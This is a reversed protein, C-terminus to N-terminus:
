RPDERALIQEIRETIRAAARLLGVTRADDVSLGLGRQAVIGGEFAHGPESVSTLTWTATVVAVLEGTYTPSEDRLLAKVALRWQRSPESSMADGFSRRLAAVFRASDETGLGMARISVTRAPAVTQVSARTRFSRSALEDDADEWRVDFEERLRGGTVAPVPTGRHVLGDADSRLALPRVGTGPSRRVVLEVNPVPRDRWSVRLVTDAIASVVIETFISERLAECRGVEADSTAFLTPLLQSQAVADRCEALARLVDGRGALEVAHEVSSAVRRTLERLDLEVRSYYTGGILTRQVVRAGLLRVTGVSQVQDSMRSTFRVDPPTGSARTVSEELARTTAVSVRQELQRALLAFAQDDAGRETADSACAAVRGLEPM